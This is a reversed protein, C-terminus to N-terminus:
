FIEELDYDKGKGYRILDMLYYEELSNLDKVLFDNETIKLIQFEFKEGFNVMRYKKATRLVDLSIPM